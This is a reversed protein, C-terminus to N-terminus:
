HTQCGVTQLLQLPGTAKLQQLKNQNKVLLSGAFGLSNVSIDAHKEQSRPVVMMWKHTCLFNYPATQADQWKNTSRIGVAALLTRYRSLLAETATEADDTLQQHDASPMPLIAHRFPLRASQSVSGQAVTSQIVEDLPFDNMSESQPVIQIHKHPQSAGADKGGNFFVLGKVESLCRAIAEFDAQNLWSEQPEFQRTVILFHNDVVNFKNLLCLHTPSIDCVYLAPEYPLFPNAPATKGQQKRAKEKRSLNALIHIRFRLGSDEVTETHTEISQLAGVALGHESQAKLRQWLSGTEWQIRASVLQCIPQNAIAAVNRV